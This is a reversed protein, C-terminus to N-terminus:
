THVMHPLSCVYMARAQRSGGSGLGLPHPWEPTGTRPATGPPGASSQPPTGPWRGARSVPPVPGLWVREEALAACVHYVSEGGGGGCCVCVCVCHVTVNDETSM